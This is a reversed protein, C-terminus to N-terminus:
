YTWSVQLGVERGAMPYGPVVEYNENFLNDITFAVSLEGIEKRAFARSLRLSGTWYSEDRLNPAPYRDIWAVELSTDLCHSPFRLGAKVQHRPRGGILTGTDRDEPHLFTYSLELIGQGPLPRSLSLIAGSIRAAAINEPSYVWDGDADQWNILDTVDRLFLDVGWGTELARGAASLEYSWSREPQLDPNGRAYADNWYLDDFTPTRYGRAVSGRLTLADAPKWVLALRPSFQGDFLSYRDYRGTLVLSCDPLAPLEEQLFLGQRNMGRDGDNTSQLVDWGAEAGATFRGAWGLDRTGQLTLGGSRTRHRSFISSDADRYERRYRNFFADATLFSRESAEYRYRLGYVATDDDQRAHPTPFLALGPSGLRQRLEDLSLDLVSRDLALAAHLNYRTASADDNDRYGNSLDRGISATMGLGGGHGSLSFEGGRDGLSGAWSRLQALPMTLPDRTIINIVGGMAEAGYLASSSDPLVEVRDILSGTLPLDSLNFWGSQQSNLRRGDLLVLVEGPQSGRITPLTAMFRSGARNVLVGPLRDLADDLRGGADALGDRDIVLVSQPAETQALPTRTATVVVEELTAAPEEAWAGPAGAAMAAIFIWCSSGVLWGKRM